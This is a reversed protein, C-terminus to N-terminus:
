SQVKKRYSGGKSIADVVGARTQDMMTDMAGALEARTIGATFNQNIIIPAEMSGGGGSGGGGISRSVASMKHNPVITGRSDPIFLEPGREGVVSVKGM